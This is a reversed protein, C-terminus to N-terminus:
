KNKENLHHIKVAKNAQFITIIFWCINTALFAYASGEIEFKKILVINLIINIISAFIVNLVLAGKKKLFLLPAAFIQAMFIFAFGLVFIPILKLSAYFREDIFIRAVFPLAIAIVTFIFIVISARKLTKQRFDGQSFQKFIMPNYASLIPVMLLPDLMSGFKFALAYIGLEGEGLYSKILFRDIGNIGFYALSSIIFPYGGQIYTLMDKSSIAQMKLYAGTTDRSKKMMILSLVIAFMSSVYVSLIGLKFYKILIINLILTTIAVIAKNYTVLRPKQDLQLVSYVNNQFFSLYVVVLMCIIVYRNDFSFISDNLYILCSGFVLLIPLALVNYCYNIRSIFESKQANDLHSYEIYIYQSFGFSVVIVLLAMMTNILEMEGYDATTFVSTYLPILFFSVGKLLIAGFIYIISGNLFSGPVSVKKILNSFNM